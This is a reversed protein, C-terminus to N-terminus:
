SKYFTGTRFDYVWVDGNGVVIYQSPGYFPSTTATDSRWLWFGLIQWPSGSPVNQFWGGQTSSIWGRPEAITIWQSGDWYAWVPLWYDWGAPPYYLNFAFSVVTPAASQITLVEYANALWQGTPSFVDVSVRAAQGETGAPVTFAFPQVGGASAGLYISARAPSFSLLALAQEGKPVVDLTAAVGVGGLTSSNTVTAVMQYSKGAVVLAM